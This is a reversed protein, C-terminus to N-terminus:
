RGYDGYRVVGGDCFRSIKLPQGDRRAAQPHHMEGGAGLRAPLMPRGGTQGLRNIAPPQPQAIGGFAFKQPQQAQKAKEAEMRRGAEEAAKRVYDTNGQQPPPAPAPAGAAQSLAKHAMLVDWLRSLRSQQPEPSDPM